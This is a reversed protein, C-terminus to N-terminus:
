VTAKGSSMLPTGQFLAFRRPVRMAHRVPYAVSSKNVIYWSRPHHSKLEKKSNKNKETKLVNKYLNKMKRNSRKMIINKIEIPNENFLSLEGM